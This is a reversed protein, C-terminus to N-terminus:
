LPGGAAIDLASVAPIRKLVTGELDHVEVRLRGASVAFHLHRQEDELEAYRDAAREVEAMTEPPPSGPIAGARFLSGLDDSPPPGEFAVPPSADARRPPGDSPSHDINM